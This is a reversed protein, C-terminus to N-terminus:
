RRDHLPSHGHVKKYQNSFQFANEFHLLDAVEGVQLGETRLINRAHHMRERILYEKPSVNLTKLFLRRFHPLSLGAEAALDPVRLPRDLHQEIHMLAKRIREDIPSHDSRQGTTDLLALQLASLLLQDVGIGRERHVSTVISTLTQWHISEASCEHYPGPILDADTDGDIDFEVYLYSVPLAASYHTEREGPSLLILHRGDITLSTDSFRFEGRGSEILLFRHHEIRRRRLHLSKHFRIRASGLYTACLPM